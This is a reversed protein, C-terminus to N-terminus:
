NLKFLVNLRQLEKYLETGPRVKISRSPLKVEFGDLHDVINFEVPTNGNNATFVGNLEDILLNDLDSNSITLQINKTKKDRLDDLLEISSVVFELENRYRPIEIRGRLTLFTGPVMFHKYRLYNEKFINLKFQDTYDEFTLTGFPDGSKTLRHEVSTVIAAFFLDRGKNAAFDALMGVNAPCFAEIEHKYDDLPHGSIYIGIMEKEKNLKYSSPWEDCFPIIPEPLFDGTQNGFMDYQPSNLNFQYLEGFRHVGEIFTRGNTDKLLYQARNVGTFSDFGGAFVLCEFVRKTCSKLNIKKSFDFISSYNEQDRGQIIAEVAGAGMGRIAGLGFRIAGEKNVTFSFKSENIDPGLVNIGM